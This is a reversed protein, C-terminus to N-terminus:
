GTRDTRPCAFYITTDYLNIRFRINELHLMRCGSKIWKGLRGVNNPQWPDGLRSAVTGLNVSKGVYRRSCLRFGAQAMLTQMAHHTFFFYHDGIFMRWRSRVIPLYFPVTPVSVVLLGDDRIIHRVERLVAIPDPVHELSAFLSIVDFSKAQFGARSLICERVDLCLHERAYTAGGINPEVGTCTWGRKRAEDLFYGEYCGVDLIRGQSPRFQEIMNLYDNFEQIRGWYNMRKKKTSPLQRTERCCVLYPLPKEHIQMTFGVTQVTFLSVAVSEICRKKM